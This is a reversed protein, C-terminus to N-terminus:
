ESDRWNVPSARTHRGNIEETRLKPGFRCLTQTYTQSFFTQSSIRRTCKGRAETEITFGWLLVLLSHLLSFLTGLLGKPTM